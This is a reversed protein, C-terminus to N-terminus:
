IQRPCGWGDNRGGLPSALRELLAEFATISAHTPISHNVVVADWPLDPVSKTEEVTTKYGLGQLHVAFEEAEEKGPFAVTFDINRSASLDDGSEQLRRLVDGNEDDPFDTPM